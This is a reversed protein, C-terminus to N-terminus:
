RSTWFVMPGKARRTGAGDLRDVDRSYSWAGLGWHTQGERRVGAELVRLLGDDEPKLRVVTGHTEGPDGAQGNFLAIQLYPGDGEFKFRLAPATVPFISPGNAGSQSFDKGIGFSSNFFLTSTDTAYFESNLDFLGALLSVGSEGFSQEYWFEYFRLHDTATEINSSVQADGVNASPSADRDGGTNGLVYVFFRAGNIGASKQLDVELRLDLNDLYVTRRRQGGQLNANVEGKYIVALDWGNQSWRSRAGGLDGLLNDEYSNEDTGKPAYLNPDMPAGEAPVAPASWTRHAAPERASSPTEAAEEAAVPGVFMMLGSMLVVHRNM